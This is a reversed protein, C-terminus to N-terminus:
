SLFHFKLRVFYLIMTLCYKHSDLFGLNWYLIGSKRAKWCESKVCIQDCSNAIQPQSYRISHGQIQYLGLYNIQLKCCMIGLFGHGKREAHNILVNTLTNLEMISYRGAAKVILLRSLFDSSKRINRTTLQITPAASKM